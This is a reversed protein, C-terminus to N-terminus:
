KKILKCHHIADFFVNPSSQDVYGVIEISDGKFFHIREDFYATVGGIEGNGISMMTVGNEFSGPSYVTNRVHVCQHFHAGQVVGMLDTLETLPDNVASECNVNMVKFTGSNSSKSRSPAYSSSNDSNSSCASM